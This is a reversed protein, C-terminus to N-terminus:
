KDLSLFSHKDFSIKITSAAAVNWPASPEDAALELRIVQMSQPLRKLRLAFAQGSHPQGMSSHKFASFYGRKILNFM